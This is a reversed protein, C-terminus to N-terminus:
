IKNSNSNYCIANKAWQKFSYMNAYLILRNETFDDFGYLINAMRKTGFTQVNELYVRYLFERRHKTKTRAARSMVLFALALDLGIRKLDVNLLAEDVEAFESNWLATNLEGYIFQIGNNISNSDAFSYVGKLFENVNM